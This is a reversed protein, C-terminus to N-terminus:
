GNSSPSPPSVSKFISMAQAVMSAPDGANTPLLLTNGEKALAGFARLYQEAVSLSAAQQAHPSNMSAALAKLGEATADARKFIANAEGAAGLWSLVHEWTVMAPKCAREAPKFRTRMEEGKVPDLSGRFTGAAPCQDCRM